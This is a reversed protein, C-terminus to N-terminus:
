ELDSAFEVSQRRQCSHMIGVRLKKYGSSLDATMIQQKELVQWM